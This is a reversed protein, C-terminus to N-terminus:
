PRGPAGSSQTWLPRAGRPSLEPLPPRATARPPSLATADGSTIRSSQARPFPSPSTNGYEGFTLVTHLTKPTMPVAATVAPPTVWHSSGAQSLPRPTNVDMASQSVSRRHKTVSRPPKPSPRGRVHSAPPFAFREASEAEPRRRTRWAEHSPTAHPVPDQGRIPVFGDYYTEPMSAMRAHGARASPSRLRLSPSGHVTDLAPPISRPTLGLNQGLSPPPQGPTVAGLTSALVRRRKPSPSPMGAWPRSAGQWERQLMEPPPHNHLDAHAHSAHRPSGLQPTSALRSLRESTTATANPPTVSGSALTRVAHASTSTRMLAVDAGFVEDYLRGPTSPARPSATRSTTPPMAPDATAADWPADITLPKSLGTEQAAQQLCAHLRLAKQRSVGLRVEVLPAHSPALADAAMTEALYARCACGGRYKLTHGRACLAAVALSAVSYARAANPGRRRPPSCRIACPAGAHCSPRIEPVHTAQGHREEM